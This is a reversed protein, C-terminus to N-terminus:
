TDTGYTINQKDQRRKRRRSKRKLTSWEHRDFAWMQKYAEKTGGMAKNPTKIFPKM